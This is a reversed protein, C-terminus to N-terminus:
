VNNGGPYDPLVGQYLGMMKLKRLAAMQKRNITHYVCFGDWVAVAGSVDCLWRVYDCYMSKPCADSVERTNSFGLKQQALLELKKTHSPVAYMVVGNEDIVVELYNKFTEKHKQFDFPSYVSYSTTLAM